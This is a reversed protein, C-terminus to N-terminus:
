GEFDSIMKITGSRINNIADFTRAAIKKINTFSAATETITDTIMQVINAVVIKSFWNGAM